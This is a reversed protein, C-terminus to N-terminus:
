QLSSPVLYPQFRRTEIPTSPRSPPQMQLVSKPIGPEHTSSVSPMPNSEQTGSGEGQNPIPDTMPRYPIHSDSIVQPPAVEM